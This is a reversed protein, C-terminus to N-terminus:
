DKNIKLYHFVLVYLNAILFGLFTGIICIISRTPSSKEYPVIPSDITKYVYDKKSSTLMLSQIQAEILNAIAVKITQIENTKSIDTLFNISNELFIKQELQMTSNINKIIIDLWKQAIIPSEHTLTISLFSTKKNSKLFLIKRYIKYAEQSSPIPKNSSWKGSSEDFNSEYIIKNKDADWKKVALLNELKIYPLFHKSFFEYSQIREVAEITKNSSDGSSINVGALGALSSLGSMRGSLSDNSTAPALLASSTYFNPLSLSYLVTIVAFISTVLSIFNKKKWVVNFIENFDIEDSAYINKNEEIM